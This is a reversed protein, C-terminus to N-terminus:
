PGGPQVRRVVSYIRVGVVETGAARLPEAWADCVEDQEAATLDDFDELLTTSNRFGLPLESIRIAREEGRADVARLEWSAREAPRLESFLRFASFPFLELRAVGTVAFVLLFLHVLRRTRPTVEPGEDPEAM